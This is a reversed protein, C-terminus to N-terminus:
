REREEKFQQCRCGEGHKMGELACCFRVVGQILREREVPDALIARIDVRRAQQKAFELARSTLKM